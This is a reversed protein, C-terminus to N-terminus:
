NDFKSAMAKQVDEYFDERTRKAGFSRLLSVLAGKKSKEPDDGEEEEEDSYGEGLAIDLPTAYDM